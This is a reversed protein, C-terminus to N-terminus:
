TLLDALAHLGALLLCGGGATLATVVAITVAPSDPRPQWALCAFAVGAAVIAICALALLLGAAAEM